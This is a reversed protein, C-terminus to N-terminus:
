YPAVSNGRNRPARWRPLQYRETSLQLQRIQSQLLTGLHGGNGDRTDGTPNGCARVFCREAASSQGRVVLALGATYDALFNLSGDIGTSATISTPCSTSIDYLLKIQRATSCPIFRIKGALFTWATLQTATASSSLQPLDMVPQVNPVQPWIETSDSVSGGSAWTGTATCGMLRITTSSPVTITWIDNIDETIQDPPVGFVVVQQGETFSHPSGFTIEAYPAAGTTFAIATIAATSRISRDWINIPQGLNTIQATAPDLYPTYAALNWFASRRLRRSDVSLLKQILAEYARGLPGIPTTQGAAGFLLVDDNWVAGGATQVDDIASRAAEAVQQLTPIM